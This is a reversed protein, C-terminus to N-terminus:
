LNWQIPRLIFHLFMKMLINFSTPISTGFPMSVLDFHLMFVPLPLPHYCAVIVVHKIIAGKLIKLHLSISNHMNLNNCAIMGQGQRCEHQM